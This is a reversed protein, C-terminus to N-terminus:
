GRESYLDCRRSKYDELWYKKPDLKCQMFCVDVIRQEIYSACGICTRGRASMEEEQRRIAVSEASQSREWERNGWDDRKNFTL